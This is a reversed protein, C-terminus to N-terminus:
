KFGANRFLMVLACTGTIGALLLNLGVCWPIFWLLEKFFVFSLSITAAVAFRLLREAEYSFKCNENEDFDTAPGEAALGASYRLKSVLRPVRLNTLGEFMLIFIIAYIGYDWEMLLFTILCFGFIFRNARESM